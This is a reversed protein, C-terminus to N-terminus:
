KKMLREYCAKIVMADTLANHRGEFLGTESYCVRHVDPDVGNLKFLTALDFPIYYINRPLCEAGGGFLQCFLVWDYALVDGWMEIKDFDRLWLKLADTVRIRDACMDISPGILIPEPTGSYKLKSIINEAIWSDVQLKDYDTLEAYFHRNDETVIGLSILTTNQHLGTFECDMFLRM